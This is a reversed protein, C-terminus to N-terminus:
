YTVLMPIGALEDNVMERFRLVTIPYAKAKGDWSVGLVLEDDDFPAMDANVFIPNYVPKIGDFPISQFYGRPLDSPTPLNTPSIDAPAIEPEPAPTETPLSTIPNEGPSTPQQPLLTNDTRNDSAVCSSFLIVGLTTLLFFQLAYRKFM